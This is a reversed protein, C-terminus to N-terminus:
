LMRKQRLWGLLGTGMGALLLAGPTPVPSVPASEPQIGFYVKAMSFLYDPQYLSVGSYVYLNYTDGPNISYVGDLCNGSSYVGNVVSGFYDVIFVQEGTTQNILEAYSRCGWWEDYMMAHIEFADGLPKFTTSISARIDLACTGANDGEWDLDYAGAYTNLVEFYGSLSRCTTGEGQVLSDEYSFSQSVSSRQDYILSGNREAVIHHEQSIMDYHPAAAAFPIVLVLSVLGIMSVLPKM